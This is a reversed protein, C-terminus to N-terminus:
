DRECSFAIFCSDAGVSSVPESELQKGGSHVADETCWACSACAADLPPRAAVTRCIWVQLPITM